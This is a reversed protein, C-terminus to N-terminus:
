LSQDKTQVLPGFALLLSDKETLDVPGFWDHKIEKENTRAALRLTDRICYNRNDSIITKIQKKVEIQLMKKQKCYELDNQFMFFFVIM